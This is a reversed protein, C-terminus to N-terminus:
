VSRGFKQVTEGLLGFDRERAHSRVCIMCYTHCSVSWFGRNRGWCEWTRLASM